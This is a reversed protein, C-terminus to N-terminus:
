KPTSNGAIEGVSQIMGGSASKDLYAMLQETCCSTQIDIITKRVNRLVCPTRMPLSMWFIKVLALVSARSPRIKTHTKIPRLAAAIESLKPWKQAMRPACDSSGPALKRRPRTGVTVAAEPANPSKAAQPTACTPESKEASAQFLMPKVAPSTFFGLRSTASEIAKPVRM